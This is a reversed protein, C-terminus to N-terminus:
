LLTTNLLLFSLIIYTYMYHTSKSLVLLITSLLYYVIYQFQMTFLITIYDVTSLGKIHVVKLLCEMESNQKSVFVKRRSGIHVINFGTATNHM